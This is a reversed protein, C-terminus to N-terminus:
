FEYNLKIFITNNDYESDRGLYDYHIRFKFQENVHSEIGVGAGYTWRSNDIGNTVFSLSTDGAYSSTSAGNAQKVDYVASINSLINLTDNLKYVFDSGLGMVFSETDLADVYLNLDGAGSEVFDSNRLYTYAANISPKIIVKNTLPIDKLLRLSVSSLYSDYKAQATQNMIDIERRSENKQIGTSMQYFFTTSDDIIKNSGYIVLNYIDMNNTQSLNNTDVKGDVYVFAFGLKNGSSIEKDIGVAVGSSDFEYGNKGDLDGQKANSGFIKMWVDHSTLYEDGSNLGSTSSINGLQRGSIVDRVSSQIQMSSSALSSTIVPTTTEVAKAIEKNTSLRQLKTVFGGLPNGKEYIKDLTDAAVLLNNNQKVHNDHIAQQIIERIKYAELIKLSLRRKDSNNKDLEFDLLASNDYFSLTEFDISMDTNSTLIDLLSKEFMERQLSGLTKVNVGIKSGDEFTASPVKFQGFDSLSTLGIELSSGSKQVLPNKLTAVGTEVSLKGKNSFETSTNSSIQLSSTDKFSIEGDNDLSTLTTDGSSLHIVGNEKNNFVTTSTYTTAPIYINGTNNLNLNESLHGKLTGSNNVTATGVSDHYLSFSKTDLTTDNEYAEITGENIIIEDHHAKIGYNNTTGGLAQITGKNTINSKTQADIGIVTSAGNVQIKGSNKVVIDTTADVGKLRIGTADGSESEVNITKYNSVEIKKSSKLDIGTADTKAKIIFDGLDQLRVDVNSSTDVFIGTSSSTTSEVDFHEESISAILIDHSNTSEAINIGKAEGVAYVEIDGRDILHLESKIDTSSLATQAGSAPTAKTGIIIKGGEAITVTAGEINQTANITSGSEILKNAIAQSVVKLDIKNLTSSSTDIVFDIDSSGDTIIINELNDIMASNLSKLIEAKVENLNGTTLDTTIYIIAKNDTFNIDKATLKSYSASNINLKLTSTEDQKYSNISIANTVTPLEVTGGNINEVSLNEGHLNGVLEGGDNIIKQSGGIGEQWFAYANKHLKGDIKAELLGRNRLETYVNNSGTDNYVGYAKSNADGKANVKIDLKHNLLDVKGSTTKTKFGYAMATNSGADVSVDINKISSVTINNQADINLASAEQESSVSLKGNNQLNIVVESNSTVDFVSAIANESSVSLDEESNENITIKGSNGEVKVARADNSGTSVVTIKKENSITASPVDNLYIADSNQTNITGKNFLYFNKGGNVNFAKAGNTNIIGENDVSLNNLMSSVVFADNSSTNVTVGNKIYLEEKDDSLVTQTNINSTISEQNSQKAVLKGDIVEFHHTLSNDLVVANELNTIESSAGFIDFEDNNALALSSVDIFITSNNEFSLKNAILKTYSSKNDIKLNLLSAASKMHLENIKIDKTNPVDKFSLEGYNNFVFNCYDNFTSDIYMNFTGASNIEKIKTNSNAYLDIHGNSNITLNNGRINGKITGSSNLTQTATNASPNSSDEQYFAYTDYNSSSLHNNIKGRNTLEFNSDHGKNDIYIAKSNVGSTEIDGDSTLHTNAKLETSEIANGSSVKVSAVSSITPNIQGDSLTQKVTLPTSIELETVPPNADAIVNLGINKTTGSLTFDIYDSNDLILLNTLSSNIVTNSQLVSAFTEGILDLENGDVFSSVDIFITAGDAFTMTSAFFKTFDSLSNIKLKVEAIENQTFKKASFQIGNNTNFYVNGENQIDLNSGFTGGVINNLTGTNKIKKIKTASSSYLDVHGDNNLTGRQIYINGYINGANNYISGYDYSYIAFNNKNLTNTKIIGSVENTITNTSNINYLYLGYKKGTITGSNTVNTQGDVYQIHTGAEYKGTITGANNFNVNGDVFYLKVGQAGSINGGSLNSFNVNGKTSDIRFGGRYSKTGQREKVTGSNTINVNNAYNTYFASYYSSITGSNILTVLGPNSIGYMGIEIGQYDTSRITGKNEIYIKGYMDDFDMAQQKGYMEGHNVLKFDGLVNDVNLAMSQYQGSTKVSGGSEVHLITELLSNSNKFELVYGGDNVHVGNRVWNTEGKTLTTSTTTLDVALVFIPALILIFIKSLTKM